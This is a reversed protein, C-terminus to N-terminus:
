RVGARTPSWPQSPRHRLRGGASDTIMHNPGTIPPHSRQTTRPCASRTVLVLRARAARTAAAAARQVAAHEPAGDPDGRVEGAAAEAAVAEALPGADVGDGDRDAVGPNVRTAVPSRSMWPGTALRARPLPCPLRYSKVGMSALTRCCTCSASRAIQWMSVGSDCSSVFM